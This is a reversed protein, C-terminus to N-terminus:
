IGGFFSVTQKCVIIKRKYISQIRVQELNQRTPLENLLKLFIKKALMGFLKWMTKVNM